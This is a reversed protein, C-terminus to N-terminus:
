RPDVLAFSDIVQVFAARHKEFTDARATCTLVWVRDAGGVALALFKLQQGALEGGYEFTAAPKGSVTRSKRDFVTLNAAAMQRLSLDVFGDLTMTLYQVQVNCNAAFGAEPAGAITVRQVVLADQKEGLAPTAVSFGYVPDTFRAVPAAGAAVLPAPLAVAVLALALLRM